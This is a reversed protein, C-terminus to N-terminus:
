TVDNEGIESQNSNDMRKVEVLSLGLDRIRILIGHLATQDPLEGRLVTHGDETHLITVDEYPTLWDLNVHGEIIIKFVQSESRM